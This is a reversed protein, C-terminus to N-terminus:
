IPEYYRQESRRLAKYLNRIMFVCGIATAGWFVFMLLSGLAGVDESPAKWQSAAEDKAPHRTPVGDVLTPEPTPAVTASNGDNEPAITPADTRLLSKSPAETPSHSANDAGSTPADSYVPQLSPGFTALNSPATSNSLFVRTESTWILRGVVKHGANEKAWSSSTRANVMHSQPGIKPTSSDPATGWAQDVTAEATVNILVAGSPLDISAAFAPAFPWVDRDNVDNTSNLDIDKGTVLKESIPQNPFDYLGGGSWRTPGKQTATTASQITGNEFKFAYRLRTMDVYLAGGVEWSFWSNDESVEAWEIYPQVLDTVLLALRINRPIHGDGSGEPKLIQENTGLKQPSPTKNDSCEVLINFARLVSDNYTTKSANYGGFTSPNCPRVKGGWSGSYGWDEMGGNVPYVLDNLRGHPYRGADFAGAFASMASGLGLQAVDDPSVRLEERQNTVTGWEFAIAQMGGHYTLAVQFLNERWVENVARGAITRMCESPNRDIPFDRNVDIHNEERKNDYYGKANTAPMIFIDRTDVLRSLWPNSGETYTEVLLKMMEIMTSPGVRENGHVEGSFFVQPREADPLTTRNTIRVVWQKCEQNGCYGPSPLGYRSQADFVEVLDPFKAGLEQVQEVVELYSYYKFARGQPAASSNVAAFLIALGLFGLTAM